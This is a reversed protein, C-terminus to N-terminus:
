LEQHSVIMHFLYMLLCDGLSGLLPSLLVNFIEWGWDQYIPDGTVRHLIFLSEVTEPRLIYYRVSTSFLLLLFSCNTSHM